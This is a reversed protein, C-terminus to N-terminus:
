KETCPDPDPPDSEAGAGSPSTAGSPQASGSPTGAPTNSPSPTASPTGPCSPKTPSSPATPKPPSISVTVTSRPPSSPTPTPTPTPTPAPTPAPTTGVPPQGGAQPNPYTTGLGPQIESVGVGSKYAEAWILVTRVYTDSHNYRFVAIGRHQPNEMDLGGSCLYKGAALTADYINHPSTVGDGNGDAKYGQWTSPIFQMMGVARDWQTDGDLAGGDTDRIAAFGQGNLVPGLIRDITNGKSDVAGGRGHNSEIRGISALLSWHMRCSPQQVALIEAAKKYAAYATSPITVGAVPVGLTDGSTALANPDGALRLLEESLRDVEPLQGSAGLDELEIGFMGRGLGNAMAALAQEDAAAKGSTDGALGAPVLLLAVAVAVWGRKRRLFRLVKRRAARNSPARVFSM